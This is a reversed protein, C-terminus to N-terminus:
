FRSFGASSFRTSGGRINTPCRGFNSVQVKSRNFAMPPSTGLLAGLPEGNGTQITGADIKTGGTYTNTGTLLM